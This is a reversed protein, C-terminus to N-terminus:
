SLKSYAIADRASLGFAPLVAWSRLVGESQFGNKMLVKQTAHHEKDVATWIRQISPQAILWDTAIQVAESAYGQGSHRPSIGYHIEAIHKNLFVLFIGLPENRLDAVVWAFSQEPTAWAEGCWKNLFEGTHEVSPHPLRSLFRSAEVSGFYNAFLVVDDEPFVGRLQLNKGQLTKPLLSM